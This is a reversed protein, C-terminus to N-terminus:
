SAQEAVQGGARHRADLFHAVAGVPSRQPQRVAVSDDGQCRMGVMHLALQHQVVEAVQRGRDGPAPPQEVEIRIWLGDDVGELASGSRLARTALAGPWRIGRVTSSGSSARRTTSPWCTDSLAARVCAPRM